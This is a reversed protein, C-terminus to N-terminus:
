AISKMLISNPNRPMFRVNSCYKVADQTITLATGVVPGTAHIHSRLPFFDSTPFSSIASFRSIILMCICRRGSIGVVAEGQGQGRGLGKM